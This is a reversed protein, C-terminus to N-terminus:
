LPLLRRPLKLCPLIVAEPQSTWVGGQFVRAFGALLLCEQYTDLVARTRAVFFFRQSVPGLRCAVTAHGRFGRWDWLKSGFFREFLQTGQRGACARLDSSFEKLM